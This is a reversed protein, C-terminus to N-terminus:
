TTQRASASRSIIQPPVSLETPAVYRPRANGTGDCGGHYAFGIPTSFAHPPILSVDTSSLPNKLTTELTTCNEGNLGCSGTQLYAIAAVIPGNATYASGTSLVRGAQILTPSGHGCRNTFIITHTEATVGLAAIAMTELPILICNPLM